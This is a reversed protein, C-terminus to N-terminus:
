EFQGEAVPLTNGRGKCPSARGEGEWPRGKTPPLLPPPRGDQLAEDGAETSSHAIPTGCRSQSM